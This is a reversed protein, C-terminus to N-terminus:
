QLCERLNAMGRHIWTKITGVPTDMRGAIEPYSLGQYFGMMICRHQNENLQEVCDMLQGSMQGANVDSFVDTHEDVPEAQNGFDDQNAERRMKRLQDYACYRAITSMWTMPAAVGERYDGANNWIKVYAQQLCDQALEEQKLIRVLLGFLKSSTEEYLQTFAKQDRMASRALLDIYISKDAM